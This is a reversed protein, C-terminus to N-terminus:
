RTSGTPCCSGPLLAGHSGARGRQGQRQGPRQGEEGQGEAAVREFPGKGQRGPGRDTGRCRRGREHSRHKGGQGGQGGRM